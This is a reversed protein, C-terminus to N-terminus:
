PRSRHGTKGQLAIISTGFYGVDSAAPGSGAVDANTYLVQVERSKNEIQEVRM